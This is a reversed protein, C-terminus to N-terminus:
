ASQRSVWPWPIQARTEVSFLKLESARKGKKLTWTGEFPLKLKDSTSTMSQCVRLFLCVTRFIYSMFRRLCFPSTHVTLRPDPAGVWAPGFCLRLFNKLTHRGARSPRQEARVSLISIDPFTLSGFSRKDHQPWGSFLKSWWAGRETCVSYRSVWMGLCVCLCVRCSNCHKLLVETAKAVERSCEQHYVFQLLLMVGFARM